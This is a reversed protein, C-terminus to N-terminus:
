ALPRCEEAHARYESLAGVARKQAASALRPRGLASHTVEKVGLLAARKIDIVTRCGDRTFSKLSV